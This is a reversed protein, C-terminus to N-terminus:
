LGDQNSGTVPVGDHRGSYDGFRKPDSGSCHGSHYFGYSSLAQELMLGSLADAQRRGPAGMRQRDQAFVPQDLGKEHLNQFHVPLLDVLLGFGELM